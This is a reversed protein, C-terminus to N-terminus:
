KKGDPNMIIAYWKGTHRNRFVAYDPYKEWLFEPKDGYQKRIYSVIRKTQPYIFLNDEFCKSRIDNLMEVMEERVKSVFSGYFADTYVNPYEENLESEMVKVDLKGDPKVTMILEFEDNMFKKRYIYDRNDLVFGYNKLKTKSSHSRKFIDEIINM